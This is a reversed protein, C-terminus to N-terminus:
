KNIFVSLGIDGDSTQLTLLAKLIDGMDCDGAGISDINGELLLVLVEGEKSRKVKFNVVRLGTVAQKATTTDSM